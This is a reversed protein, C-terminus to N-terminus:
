NDETFWDTLWDGSLVIMPQDNRGSFTNLPKCYNQYRTFEMFNTWNNTQISGLVDKTSTRCFAKGFNTTWRLSFTPWEDHEFNQPINNQTPLYFGYIKTYIPYHIKIVTPSNLGWSLKRLIVGFVGSFNPFNM